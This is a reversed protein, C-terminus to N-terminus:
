RSRSLSDKQSPSLIAQMDYNKPWGGNEKQYLLINDAIAKVQEARFKPRGPLPNIVNGKDKIDYWHHAADEFDSTDIVRAGQAISLFPFCMIPLVIKWRVSKM